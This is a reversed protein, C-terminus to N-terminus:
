TIEFTIIYRAYTSTNPIRINLYVYLLSTGSSSAQLDQIAIYVTNSSGLDYFSGESQSISGSSIIIQTSNTGDHITVNASSLRDINSSDYVELNVQWNDEVQNAAELVYDYTEATLIPASVNVKASTNNTYITSSGVIGQQLIVKPSAVASTPEMFLSLYTDGAVSYVFYSELVLLTLVVIVFNRLRVRKLCM